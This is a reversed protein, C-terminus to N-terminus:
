RCASPHRTSTRWSHDECCVRVCRTLDILSEQIRNLTTRLRSSILGLGTSEYMDERGFFTYVAYLYYDFLQSMCHIVDFAIPKLINMMQMYKGVLRIVNLTTNTLILTNGKNLYYDSKKRSKLTEKSVSKVPVDGTQEDVYDRKLEEPVDSDSDYDQYASKELEDSEYGNAALVDETEDDKIDTQHEFPNGGNQYQDFLSGATASTATYQKSPSVSPSRSQRMFKFEHLQLISFNSKVPCLEWTENELFMRLEELRIRHYSKFYNVSQKRISEQLVESKSGCFEEGVQMLRSIIDLVFIFDDYKFNSLDTGLLYTKAKLQVDQWIRSLGHELKKKVYSRNFNADDSSIENRGDSAPASEENDHEEHWSMTRYYSLMVEWLAKCLDSLCPIYSDPTIHTCLDKYQLKQFKTDSNGACLEVYGLVVQFVTNHIAQTFHMHLQDMATQTKGLLRYALQVKTYHGVEFHKCTKSLAVDLQEEIQELTDQLKSNLESICSYHKFTSAAKQCELCLQIAGPYDEEELMESLRVDTRQLTKITRLSKLLGILLQRKRQNALLGLSAQTFGEKAINLQRRANTCIVAALQLNAQLSTVRELEKVYAAQKELILDAVKKSVAAQQQKLKDRYEELDQLNLISPLKELEYNVADFSDNSFYIEEISNIIEQEAQPDSPIERLERLEEKSPIRFNEVPSKIELVSEQPSKLGQRTMLSKIKQM